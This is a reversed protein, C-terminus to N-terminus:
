TLNQTMFLKGLSEKFEYFNYDPLEMMVERHFNGASSLSFWNLNPRKDWWSNLPNVYYMFKYM